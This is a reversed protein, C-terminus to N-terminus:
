LAGLLWAGLCALSFVSGVILATVAAAHTATDIFRLLNIFIENRM